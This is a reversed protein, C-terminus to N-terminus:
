VHLILHELNAIEDQFNDFIYNASFINKGKWICYTKRIIDDSPGTIIVIM